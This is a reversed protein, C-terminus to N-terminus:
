VHNSIGKFTSSSKITTNKCDQHQKNHQVRLIFLMLLSHIAFRKSACCQWWLCSRTKHGNLIEHFKFSNYNSTPLYHYAAGVGGDVIPGIFRFFHGVGPHYGHYGGCSQVDMNNITLSFIQDGGGGEGCTNNYTTKLKYSLGRISKQGRQKESTGRCNPSLCTRM